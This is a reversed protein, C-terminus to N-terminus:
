VLERNLKDYASILKEITSKITTLESDSYTINNLSRITNVMFLVQELEDDSPLKDLSSISKMRDICMKIIPDVKAKYIENIIIKEIVKDHSM